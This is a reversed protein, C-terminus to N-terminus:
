SETLKAEFRQMRALDIADDLDYEAEPIEVFSLQTRNQWWCSAPGM